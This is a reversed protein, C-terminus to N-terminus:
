TTTKVITYQNINENIKVAEGIYHDRHLLFDDWKVSHIYSSYGTYHQTGPFQDSCNTFTPEKINFMNERLIQFLTDTKLTRCNCLSCTNDVIFHEYSGAEDPLVVALIANTKSTRGDRSHEKLSYSIEWPIWQEKESMYSERMRKSILVITVSSDFIKDRLKSAITEDTFQALSEGDLEGKNVNDVGILEQLKDVYDRVTTGQIEPLARVCNDGYKYTIFIKRGM